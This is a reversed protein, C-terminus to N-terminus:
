LRYRRTQLMAASPHPYGAAVMVQFVVIGVDGYVDYHMSNHAPLFAVVCGVCDIGTWSRGATNSTATVNVFLLITNAAGGYISASIGGGGGNLEPM